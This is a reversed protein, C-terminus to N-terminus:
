ANITSLNAGPQRQTPQGPPSAQPIERFGSFDIPSLGSSEVIQNFLKAMAPNALINPNQVIARFVNTMKDTINALYKQKGAINTKVTVPVDKFEDKLIEIFKKSSKMFGKKIDEKLQEEPLIDKGSLVREKNTKYTMNVAVKEVIEQMEELDLDVMFNKGKLLEKSIDFMSWDRYIEDLFTALKGKRYEHLSHGEATILDQLKFPTGAPPQEGMIAENAAGTVRAHDEWEKVSTEFLRINPPTLPVMDLRKGEEMTLVSLNDLGKVNKKQKFSPDDTQLLMKSAADLMETIRIMDYNIWVQPEFLEELGGCGLARGFIPDRKLFKFPDEERGKYLCVYEKDGDEKTYFGIIQMQRTYEGKKGEYGDKELWYDPLVGHLEFVEIQQGPTLSQKNTEESQKYAKSLTILDEISVTAGNKADGWGVSEKEKLKDPSYYHRICIPGSLIDTQDCFAITQWPVVEPIKKGKKVLVGGFDVYTEVMEDIFSDMGNERAWNEHFKKILFSKHYNKEENVYLVIDKLDFGEARYHLNMIPRGINKFPRDPGVTEFQSNKYLVTLKNHKYMSWEYGECVTVPLTQYNTIESKIFSFVTQKTEIEM